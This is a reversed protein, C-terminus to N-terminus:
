LAARHGAGAGDAAGEEDVVLLVKSCGDEKRDFMRYAEVGASLPLRHSIVKALDFRKSLVIPLLQEMRARAPCRGMRVTANKDYGDVPSFPFHSSTHVGVSSLVGGPRMADFGLRMASSAGVAELVGDAGRGGTLVRIRAGVDVTVASVGAGDAAAGGVEAGFDIVVDAGFERARALREPVRDVAILQGGGGPAGGAAAEDMLWRACAVALLGVPGCGVVVFTRRAGAAAAAAAAAADGCGANAACHYGTSLIDGLLLAEEQSMGAPVPLLTGDALPVRLFTAQGGHLGAGSGVAPPESGDAPADRWGFLAAGAHECRCTLGQLCYFCEGCSTTFPSCVLQGVRVGRVATGVAVVRGVFEHGMATGHALGREREHYPHLDSGCIASLTVRVLADTPQELAPMPIAEYALQCKGRFTIAMNPEGEPNGVAAHKAKSCM